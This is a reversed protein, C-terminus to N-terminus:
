RVAWVALGLVVAVLTTAVLLTRLSFRWRIWPVATLTASMLVAFWCPVRVAISTAATYWGFGMITTWGRNDDTQRPEPDTASLQIIGTYSLVQFLRKNSNLYNAQDGVWVSSPSSSVLFAADLGGHPIVLHPAVANPM